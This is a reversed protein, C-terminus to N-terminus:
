RGIPPPPPRRVAAALPLELARRAEPGPGPGAEPAATRPGPVGEPPPVPAPAWRLVDMGLARAALAQNEDATILVLRGPGAVRRGDLDAAALHLADLTRLRHALVLSRARGVLTPLRSSLVVVPGAGGLDTEAQDCLDRCLDRGLRGSREARRFAAPVEVRALESALVADPGEFIVARAQEHGPEDALYARVLASSDAFHVADAGPQGSSAPGAAGPQGSGATGAAEPQSM